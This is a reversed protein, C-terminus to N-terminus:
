FNIYIKYKNIISVISSQHLYIYAKKLKLKASYIIYFICLISIIYLICLISYQIGIIALFLSNVTSFREEIM